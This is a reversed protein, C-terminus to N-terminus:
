ILDGTSILFIHNLDYHIYSLDRVNKLRLITLRLDDFMINAHSLLLVKNDSHQLIYIYM